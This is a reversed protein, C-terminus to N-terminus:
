HTGQARSQRPLRALVLTHIFLLLGAASLAASVNGSAYQASLLCALAAIQTLLRNALLTRSTRSVEFLRGPWGDPRVHTFTIAAIALVAYIWVGFGAGNEALALAIASAAVILLLAIVVSPVRLDSM